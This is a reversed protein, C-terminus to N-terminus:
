AVAGPSLERVVERFREVVLEVVAPHAGLLEAVCDSATSEARARDAFHGPAILYPSVAHDPTVVDAPRPRPRRPHRPHRPRGVGACAASRCRGPRARRAPRPLRGRGAGGPPGAGRWGGAATRGAGRRAPPAPRAFRGDAGPRRGRRAAAPLDQRVHHGTSLLLTRRGDAHALGRAGRRAGTRLARRVVGRRCGWGGGGALTTLRAAVSNGPAHRTGHAVTVLRMHPTGGLRYGRKVVTQVTRTGLAARLRAVAMEVAHESSPPARRCRPAAAGGPSWTVPTSWCRRCCRSRRRRSSRGRRRRAAATEGHLSCRHAPWRSRRRRM